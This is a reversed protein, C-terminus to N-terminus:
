SVSSVENRIMELLESSSDVQLVRGGKLGADGESGAARSSVPISRPWRHMQFKKKPIQITLDYKNRKLKAMPALYASAESAQMLALTVMLKMLYM